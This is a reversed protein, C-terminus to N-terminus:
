LFDFTFAVTSAAPERVQFALQASQGPELHGTGDVGQPLYQRPSFVGSGIVRGDADSLTLRLAPWAQAWRADNRIAAQVQLTGSQGPVPRIERSIMTYAAPEHWAPLTCRLVGCLGAIWPRTSADAALRERDAVAIQLLLLALLGVIVGWQWRPVPASPAPARLFVPEATPVPPAHALPPEPIPTAAAGALAVHEEEPPAQLPEVSRAAPDVAVAVPAGADAGDHAAPPATIDGAVSRGEAPADPPAARLFTALPRRPPNPESM